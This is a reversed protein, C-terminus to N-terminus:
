LNADQAVGGTVTPNGFGPPVLASEPISRTVASSRATLEEPHLNPPTRREQGFLSFIGAGVGDCTIKSTLGGALRASCMLVAAASATAVLVRTHERM